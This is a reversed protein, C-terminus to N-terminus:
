SINPDPAPITQAGVEVMGPHQWVRNVVWILVAGAVVFVALCAVGDTVRGYLFNGVTFLSSWITACGSIWGITAMPLNEATQRAEEKSVGAERRIREWGIGAPRVKQYFAVLVAQDTAPTVFATVVWCVTTFAVTLVLAMATPVPHGGKAMLLFVISILFSSAMAVVECWGNIRWWFWRLLYLLGTGAGIQLIVDFADKASSLAFMLGGACVFLGLTVIRGAMVYHKETGGPNMFRRYFDHVLYSAGWNLHTLLTSSNAAILGAVMLGMWGAPLFKLMAPYAIDHGLLSPDLHPFAAQIDSLNPFVILSALAVLIWPWPRLVYHAVNFFLVGGLADKESKSALMRQAIYSGGGPEAGPYWTAWWQIAIPLMFVEMAIDWHNKFDPMVDLYHLGGPGRMASVKSVLGSLGGVQPQKLAFYAAAFVASMMIFFQIMDIILVGWLGSHAAFAVSLLGTALLTEWPPLGFMINGIKCAALSVTAMIMCNFFLGLYVSRFGRVFAASKGSYRLEYFELDTMVGSRRWLRAYFFVTAVGTLAFAWWCWNGAVGQRRVIDTVLNPTDSSFTTAVMSIGALWWPVSRGSAFFESTSQGSRKSVFLAPIFCVLLSAAIIVWDIAQLHM